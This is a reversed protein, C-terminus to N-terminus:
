LTGIFCVFGGSPSAWLFCFVGFQVLALILKRNGPGMGVGASSLSTNRLSWVPVNTAVSPRWNRFDTLLASEQKRNRNIWAGSAIRCTREALTHELGRQALEARVALEGGGLDGEDLREVKRVEREGRKSVHGVDGGVTQGRRLAAQSASRATNRAIDTCARHREVVRVDLDARKLM